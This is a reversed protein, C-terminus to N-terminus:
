AFLVSRMSLSGLDFGSTPFTVTDKADAAGVAYLLPLYHDLTPHSMRGADTQVVKALFDGDQQSVARAVDADFSDAWSPKSLDGRHLSTMAYRLNHTVNGSGLILVGEDRLPALARGLELHGAPPMRGDISLQVVPLDAAPRLHHLVSWTGHDLGWELNVSARNSGLLAVVRRALAPQGPAPYQMQFLQDPFGGFDHITEPHENGMVYTGPVFWHASVALIAKPVPVLDAMARFGRSWANDEIANMPSGHGVFLVPMRDRSRAAPGVPASSPSAASM